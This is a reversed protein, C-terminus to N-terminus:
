EFQWTAGPAIRTGPELWADVTRRSDPNLCTLFDKDGADPYPDSFLRDYLHVRAPVAHAASVWTINGKVKVSDAGPTGSKTDPLYEAQVETVRGSEDKTFGTCRVVYGYKLRVTNGPYLRFYKEPPEERCDDREIRLQRSFPLEPMGAAPDPPNRPASCAEQRGEPYNTIVLKLPDLVAVSRPTGPDLDDRVAQELLSYDIRSDSK